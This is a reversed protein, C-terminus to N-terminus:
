HWVMEVVKYKIELTNRHWRVEATRLTRLEQYSDTPIFSNKPHSVSLGQEWKSRTKPTHCLCATSGNAKPSTFGMQLAGSKWSSVPLEAGQLSSSETMQVGTFLDEDM